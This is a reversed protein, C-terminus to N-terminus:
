RFIVYDNWVQARIYADVRKSSQLWFLWIDSYQFDVTQERRGSKDDESEDSVRRELWFVPALVAFGKDFVGFEFFGVMIGTGFMLPIDLTKQTIEVTAM